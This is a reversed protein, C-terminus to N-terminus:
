AGWVAEFQERTVEWPTWDELEDLQTESLRGYEDEGHAPGYRLTPGEDYVEVQRTPLGDPGLEFYYTAPGWSGHGDGRSEAWRRRFWRTSVQLLTGPPRGTM